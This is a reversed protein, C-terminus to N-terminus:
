RQKPENERTCVAFEAYTLRGDHNSDCKAFNQTLFPDASIDDDNLYGKQNRDLSAFYQRQGHKVDVGQEMRNQADANDRMQKETPPAQAFAVSSAAIAALFAILPMKMQPRRLFLQGMEADAPLTGLRAARRRTPNRPEGARARL